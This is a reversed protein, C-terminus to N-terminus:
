DNAAELLCLRLIAQFMKHMALSGDFPASGNWRWRSLERRFDRLASAVGYYLGSHYAKFKRRDVLSLHRRIRSLLYHRWIQMEDKRRLQGISDLVKKEDEELATVTREDLRPQVDVIRPLFESLFRECAFNSRRYPSTNYDMKDVSSEFKYQQSSREKKLAQWQRGLVSKTPVIREFEEERNM